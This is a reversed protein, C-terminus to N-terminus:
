PSRAYALCAWVVALGLTAFGNVYCSWKTLKEPWAPSQLVERAPAEITSISPAFLAEEILRIERRKLLVTRSICFSTCGSPVGMAAFFWLVAGHTNSAGQAVGVVWALAAINITWYFALWKMYTTILYQIIQLLEDARRRLIEDNTM